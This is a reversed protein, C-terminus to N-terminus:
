LFDPQASYIEDQDKRVAIGIRRNGSSQPWADWTPDKPGEKIQYLPDLGLVERLTNVFEQHDTM